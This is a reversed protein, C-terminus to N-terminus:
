APRSWAGLLLGVFVGHNTTRALIRSCVKGFITGDNCKRKASIRFSYCFWRFPSAFFSVCVCVGQAARFSKGQNNDPPLNKKNIKKNVMKEKAKAEDQQQTPTTSRARGCETQGSDPAFHPHKFGSGVSCRGMGHANRPESSPPPESGHGHYAKKRRDRQKRPLSALGNREQARRKM